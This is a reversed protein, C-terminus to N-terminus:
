NQIIIQDGIGPIHIIKNKELDNKLSLSSEVLGHVFIIKPANIAKLMKILENRQAHGSFKFQTVEANIKVDFGKKSGWSFLKIKREGDIIKRGLTGEVQYGSIAILNRPNEAAHHLYSHIPGGELMGSTSVVINPKNESVIMKRYTDLDDALNRSVPIFNKIDFPVEVRHDKCWDLIKKSVWFEHFYRRYVDNMKLIMGDIFLNFKKNVFEQALIAEIEQGRGLAFTPIITVGGRNYTKYIAAILDTNPTERNPLDRLGNTAESIIIAIEELTPYKCTDHYPTEFTNVDGTYYILQGKWDLLISASGLIHGADYFTATVGDVVEFKEEYYHGRVQYLTDYMDEENWHREGEIKLHDRFLISSIDITPSTMHILGKFGHHVMGPLYGTHDFHAHSVIIAQIDKAYPDLGVPKETPKDPMIKLGCDLLIKTDKDEILIASRGIEQAAGFTTIKIM